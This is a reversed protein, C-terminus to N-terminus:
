RIDRNGSGRGLISENLLEIVQHQLIEMALGAANSEWLQNKGSDNLYPTFCKETTGHIHM